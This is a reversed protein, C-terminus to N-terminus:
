LDTSYSDRAATLECELRRKADKYRKYLIWIGVMVVLVLILLTISIQKWTFYGSRRQPNVQLPEYPIAVEREETDVYAIVTVVTPKLESIYLIFATQGTFPHSSPQHVWSNLEGVAIGCVTRMPYQIDQTYYVRYRVSEPHLLSEGSASEPPSWQLRFRHSTIQKWIVLGDNGAQLHPSSSGQHVQTLVEYSAGSLFQSEQTMEIHLYYTGQAQILTGYLRGDALTTVVVEEDSEEVERWKRAIGLRTRGSCPMVSVELVSRESVHVTYVQKQHAASLLGFQRHGSSLPIARNSSTCLLSFIGMEEQDIPSYVGINYQGTSNLGNLPINLEGLANEYDSRHDYTFDALFPGPKVAQANEPQYSVYVRPYFGRVFPRITCHVPRGGTQFTFYLHDNETNELSYQMTLGDILYIYSDQLHVSLSFHSDSLCKLYIYLVLPPSPIHIRDIPSSSTSNWISNEPFDTYNQSIFMDVDGSYSTLVADLPVRPETIEMIYRKGEGAELIGFVPVGNRLMSVDSCHNATVTYMEMVDRSLVSIQYVCPYCFAPDSVSILVKNPIPSSDSSWTTNDISVYLSVIGVTVTVSIDIDTEKSSTFSFYDVENQSSVSSIPIGAHLPIVTQKGLIVTLAYSCTTNLSQLVVKYSGLMSHGAFAPDTSLITMERTSWHPQKWTSDTDSPYTSSNLSMFLSVPGGSLVTIRLTIKEVNGVCEFHYFRKQLRGVTGMSLKGNELQVSEQASYLSYRCQTRRCYVSVAVGTSDTSTNNPQVRVTDIIGGGESSQMYESIDPFNRPYVPESSDMEVTNVYLDADGSLSTLTLDLWSDAAITVWYHHYEGHNLHKEYTLGLDLSWTEIYNTHLEYTSKQPSYLTLYLYCPFTVCHLANYVWTCDTYCHTEGDNRHRHPRSNTQIRSVYVEMEGVEVQLKVRLQSHKSDFRYKFHDRYSPLISSKVSKKDSLLVIGDGNEYLITFICYNSATLLLYYRSDPHYDSDTPAIQVSFPSSVNFYVQTYLTPTPLHNLRLYLDLPHTLDTLTLNVALQKVDFYYRRERKGTVEERHKLGPLLEVEGKMEREVLVNRVEYEAYGGTEGVLVCYSGSVSEGDEGRVFWIEGRSGVSGVTRKECESIWKTDCDRTMGISVRGSIPTIVVGVEIINLDTVPLFYKHVSPSVPHFVQLTSNYPLLQMSSDLYSGSVSYTAPNSDSAYVELQYKCENGRLCDTKKHTKAMLDFTEGILVVESDISNRFYVRMGPYGTIPYLRFTVNLDMECPINLSFRDIERDKVMGQQRIGPILGVVPDSDVSIGIFYRLNFEKTEIKFYFHGTKQGIELRNDPSIILFNPSEPSSHYDYSLFSPIEGEKAYIEAEGSLITLTLRLTLAPDSLYYHYFRHASMELVDERIEGEKVELVTELYGFGVEVEVNEESVVEFWYTEGLKPSPIQAINPFHTSKVPIPHTSNIYPGSFSTISLTKPHLKQTQLSFIADSQPLNDIKTKFVQIHNPRLQFTLSSGAPVLTPLIQHSIFRYHCGSACHVLLFYDTQSILEAASLSLQSDLSWTWQQQSVDSRDSLYVGTDGELRTLEMRIQYDPPLFPTRFAYMKSSWGEELHGFNLKEVGLCPLFLLCLQLVGWM